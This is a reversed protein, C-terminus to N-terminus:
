LKSAVWKPQKKAAFAELGVRLNESTMLARSYRQETRQSAEEVSGCALSERLGSRTVIIADPSSGAIQRAMALAKTMMEEVSEAVVNVFGFQHAEDASIPRGTLALESAVQLGCVRVVRSLGGAGAYLGRLVEPMGFTAQKAAIVIDCNLCIEAGGGFAFGNVAAIVPKKGTRRSLGAVGSLAMPQQQQPEAGYPTDRQQKLDGGACFAKPGAGTVIAVTLSPEDDFWEFIAQGELHGSMPISNMQAPRNITVLVIGPEPFTVNYVSTLPPQTSM